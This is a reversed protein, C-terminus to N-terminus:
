NASKRVFCLLAIAWLAVPLLLAWRFDSGIAFNVASMLLVTSAAALGLFAIGGVSAMPGRRDAVALLVLAGVGVMQGGMVVFAWQLWTELGPAAAQVAAASSDIFRLDEPLFSPRLLIFYAGLAVQYTGVLALLGRGM